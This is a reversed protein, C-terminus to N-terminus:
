SFFDDLSAVHELTWGIPKTLPKLADLFTKEFQKDYDIFADLGFEPPLVDIYGIVNEHFPNPTKVMIFKIKDGNKILKYKNTLGLRKIHHNYLLAARANIPTRSAYISNDSNYLDLGNVGRPFAIDSITMNIFEERFDAIYKHLESENKYMIVPLVERLKDRIKTPTSSKIMQLGMVKLKPTTYQVGESNHVSLAYTKKGVFIGTDALIERKMVMANEYANIYDALDAYAKNIIPKIAQECSKDMFEIKQKETKDKCFKDILDELCVYVSDTDSAVIRDKTDGLTKQLFANIRNAVWRIALQGSLTIGEAMRIDYFLFYPNGMSGYFSNLFIKIAMQSNNLRSIDKLLEVNKTKEYEAEIALMAKKDKSRDSYFKKMLAPIFGEKGRSYCWGNATMTYDMEKLVSTDIKQNLLDEVNSDLKLETIAEPSINYTMILHPYLSQLDFSAIYNYRGPICEKVYAGEFAQRKVNRNKNPQVIKQEKLYNYVVNEWLRIPSFVDDFNVKAKYAIAMALEILRMKDELKLVLNVDHVNYDVFTDWYNTYFDKFDVGPNVLKNEGLEVEAINDLKYSEQNGYTFKKYLDLYDLLAIGTIDYVLDTTGNQNNINREKILKWPSFTNLFDSDFLREARKFLYVIDFLNSNWGTIIDPYNDVWYRQVKNYLDREDACKIYYAAGNYDKSGWTIFRKIKSDYITILLIEEIPNNYDPFGHEVTTEIDIFFTRVQSPDYEIEDVWTDSIYQYNYNTNGYVDFGHVDKYSEIFERCERMSGPKTPYVTKGDLTKWESVEGSKSASVFLTPKFEIKRNFQRGQDYGRVLLNHGYQVVSTYCINNM